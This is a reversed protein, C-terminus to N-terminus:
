GSTDLLVPRNAAQKKGGHHIDYTERDKTALATLLEEFLKKSDVLIQSNSASLTRLKYLLDKLRETEEEIKKGLANDKAATIVQKVTANQQRTIVTATQLRKQEIADIQKLLADQERTLQNLNEAEHHIIARTKKQELEFVSTYLEQQSHLLDYFAQLDTDTFNQPAADNVSTPEATNEVQIKM